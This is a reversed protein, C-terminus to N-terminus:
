KEITFEDRLKGDIDYAKYVLRNGDIMLDLVQFTPTNTMGFETYERKDQKYMKMGSVSVVYVTGEKTSAARKGGKMPFTRLYAHDHGQLAVDIHYKDFIAGWENRVDANDRAPASSYAPHHYVAFKWTAKSESLTRDLWATQSSPPMNTDLIVFLANSYEFSYAREKEVDEPGNELLNMLELYMTPHGGQNEHNGICPVLQKQEYVGKTNHYFSDWDDRDNGRDILDGAMIYFSADPRMRHATKLLSGWRYLGNQADGMYMFSFPMTEAPATTFEALEAWGEESGDGISYVYTTDPDLGNLEAVHLHIKQDNIINLTEMSRTVAEIRELPKPTFRNHLAKKQFLLAGQKVATSTRWQFTQTTQPDGTWTLSVQDPSETSVHNTWRFYEVLRADNASQAETRIMLQDKLEEPVETLKDDADVYPKADKKFEGLRLAAPYM